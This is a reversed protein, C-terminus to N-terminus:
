RQWAVFMWVKPPKQWDEGFAEKAPEAQELVRRVMTERIHPSTKANGHLKM